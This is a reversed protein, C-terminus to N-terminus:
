KIKALLPELKKLIDDLKLESINSKVILKVEGELQASKRFAEKLLRKIRNRDVARPAIKKTVVITLKFTGPKEGFFLILDKPIAKKVPFSEVKPSPLM